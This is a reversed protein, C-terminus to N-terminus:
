RLKREAKNFSGVELILSAGIIPAAEWQATPLVDALIYSQQQQYCDTDRESGNYGADVVACVVANRRTQHYM